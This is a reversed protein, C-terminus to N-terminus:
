KWCSRLSLIHMIENWYQTAHNIQECFNSCSVTQVFHVTLKAKSSVFKPFLTCTGKWISYWVYPWRPWILRRCAKWAEMYM